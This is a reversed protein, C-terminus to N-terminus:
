YEARIKASRVVDHAPRTTPIPSSIAPQPLLEDVVLVVVVDLVAAAAVLEAAVLVADAPAGVTRAAADSVFTNGIISAPAFYV